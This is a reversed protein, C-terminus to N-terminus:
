EGLSELGIVTENTRGKGALFILIKRWLVRTAIFVSVKIPEWQGQGLFAGRRQWCKMNEGFEEALVVQISIQILICLLNARIALLINYGQVIM